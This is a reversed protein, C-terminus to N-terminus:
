TGAAMFDQELVDALLQGALKGHWVRNGNKRLNAYEQIRAQDAKEGLCKEEKTLRKLFEKQWKKLFKVAENFDKNQNDGTTRKQRINGSPEVELTYWPVDEYGAKRLFFLYSEDRQIRDFYYDCTHVCHQLTNGEIVIDLINRPAVIAYKEDAFEFKQLRPLVSNVKPWKKELAKAEKESGKNQALMILKQHAAYVDKPRCIMDNKTDMKNQEAMNVYDRWTIFTHAIDRGGHDAQKKLYNWAKIFSVPIPLFYFESPIREADGFDRIMEDPWVTNAMKENQYWALHKMNGNIAKLRKLRAPDIKLMKALETQGEDLMERTKRHKTEIFDKALRFMGIRALKEIVPSRHEIALYNATDTPLEDWLDVASNKLANKKLAALNRKYLRSCVCEYYTSKLPFYDSDQIWREYKNKYMGYYYRKVEGTDFLLIRETERTHNGPSRYDRKWYYQRQSFRRIVVGGRIRQIVQAEYWGTSLTKIKSAVKYTIGAGCKACRGKKNHRPKEVPVWRRCHSCYGEKAGKKDYEYFIYHKSHGDKELWTYFSPFMKPILAMDRDWPEQQRKEKEEIKEKRTKRQWEILGLIGKEKTGFFSQITNKGEANQWIRPQPNGIEIYWYSSIYRDTEELNDAMAGSWGRETGDDNLIRTIYEGGDPNCYIEYFPTLIGKAVKNPFFICVMLIRGKGMGRTQCRVMLDYVTTKHQDGWRTKYVVDRKNEKAMRIMAPTANIRKLQRLAEKQM